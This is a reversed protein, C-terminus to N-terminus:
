RFKINIKVKSSTLECIRRGRWFRLKCTYFPTVAMSIHSSINKTIQNIIYEDLRSFKKRVALHKSIPITIWWHSGIGPVCKYIIFITFIFCWQHGFVEFFHKSTVVLITIYIAFKFNEVVNYKFYWQNSITFCYQM